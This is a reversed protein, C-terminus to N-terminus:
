RDSDVPKGVIQGAKIVAYVQTGLPPIKPTNAEFFAQTQADEIRLDVTATSFNALCILAGDNGTYYNQGTEENTETFSGGFVLDLVMPKQTEINLIWQKGDIKKIEGSEADKWMVEIEIKPGWAPSYDPAWKCAAGPTAGTAMLAGHVQWSEVKASIVSEHEKTNRPCILMELPGATLCIQGGVIVQKNESDLWIENEPSLRKWTDPIDITPPRPKAAQEVNPNEALEDSQNGSDPNGDSQNTSPDLTANKDDSENKVVDSNPSNNQAAAPTQLASNDESPKSSSEADRTAPNECGLSFCVILALSFATFFRFSEM